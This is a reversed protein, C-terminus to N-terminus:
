PPWTLSCFSSGTRNFEKRINLREETRVVHARDISLYNLTDM